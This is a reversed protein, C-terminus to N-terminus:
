LALCSLCVHSISPSVGRKENTLKIKNKIGKSVGKGRGSPILLSSKLCCQSRKLVVVNTSSAIKLHFKVHLVIHCCTM